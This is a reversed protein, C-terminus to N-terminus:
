KMVQYLFSQGPHPRQTMSTLDMARLRNRVSSIHAFIPGSSGSIVVPAFPPLGHRSLRSTSSPMRQIRRVPAGHASRGSPYGLGDVQQRRKRRQSSSSTHSSTHRAKRACRSAFPLSSQCSAKRSALKAGALPPAFGHSGGLPALARLPQHHDVALTKRQSALKGRGRRPFDRERFRGEVGDLGLALGRPHDGVLGIVGIREPLSEGGAPYLQDARMTGIARSGFGLVSALQAAVASAPLDLAGEGPQAVEAAQHNAIFSVEKHVRSEEM